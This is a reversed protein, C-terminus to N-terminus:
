ELRRIERIKITLNILRQLLRKSMISLPMMQSNELSLPSSDVDFKETPQLNIYAILVLLACYGNYIFLYVIDPNTNCLVFNSLLYNAKSLAISYKFQMASDNLM